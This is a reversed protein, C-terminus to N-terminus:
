KKNVTDFKIYYQNKELINPLYLDSKKPIIDFGKRKCYEKISKVFWDDSRPDIYINEIFDFVNVKFNLTRCNFKFKEFHEQQCVIFRVEDEHSFSDRKMCAGYILSYEKISNLKKIEDVLSNEKYYKVEALYGRKFNEITEFKKATTELMIGDNKKCYIRWLADSDKYKSWCQAYLTDEINFAAKEIKGNSFKAPIYRMPAEWTDEWKTINTLYLEGMEILSIFQSLSMYRYLITETDIGGAYFMKGTM